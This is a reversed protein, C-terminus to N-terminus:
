EVEKIIEECLINLKKQNEYKKGSIFESISTEIKEGSKVTTGSRGLVSSKKIPHIVVGVAGCENVLYDRLENIESEHKLELRVRVYNGDVILPIDEEDTENFDLDIFSPAHSARYSVEDDDVLLFGARSGVDGWTQHTTAGISYVGNGFSKHNHYHGSFVRKFNLDGLWEATLGHDPIGAIVNDVPAHIILDRHESGQNKELAMLDVKLQDITARWPILVLGRTVLTENCVTVGVKALAEIANTNKHSDRGEMDHNGPIMIVNMKLDQIIHEYARLTPNLVSPQINGRVHFLDGAHVLLNGGAKKVEEAARVTEELIIKNRSNIGYEDTSSFATWNHNHTDSILGFM